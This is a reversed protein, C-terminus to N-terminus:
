WFSDGLGGFLFPSKSSGFPFETQRNRLSGFPASSFPASGFPTSGFPASGFPVSGFPSQSTFTNHSKGAGIPLIIKLVGDQYSADITSLDVDSPVRFVESFKGFDGQGLDIYADRVIQQVDGLDDFREPNTRALQNLRSAIRRQMLMTEETGPLKLGEVRLSRDNDGLTLKLHNSSLGPVTALIVFSNRQEQTHFRLPLRVKEWVDAEPPPVDAAVRLAEQVLDVRSQGGEAPPPDLERTVAKAKAEEDEIKKEIDKQLSALASKAGDVDDLLAEIGSIAKKRESRDEPTLNSIKDLVLMDDVLDEGFNRARKQASLVTQLTAHLDRHENSQEKLSTATQRLERIPQRHEDLHSAVRQVEINSIGQSKTRQPESKMRQQARVLPEDDDDHAVDQVKAVKAHPEPIEAVEPVLSSTVEKVLSSEAEVLAAADKSFKSLQKVLHARRAAGDLGRKEQPVALLDDVSKTAAALAQQLLLNPNEVLHVAEELQKACHQDILSDLEEDNMHSVYTGDGTQFAAHVLARVFRQPTEMPESLEVGEPRGDLAATLLERSAGFPPCEIHEREEIKQRVGAVCSAALNLLPQVAGHDLAPHHVCGEGRFRPADWASSLHVLLARTAPATDGMETFDSLIAVLKDECAANL